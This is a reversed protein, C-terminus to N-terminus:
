GMGYAGLANASKPELVGWDVSPLSLESSLIDLVYPGKLDFAETLGAQVENISHARSAGTGMAKGVAAFDVPAFTSEPTIGLGREGQIVWGYGANNLIVFTIPLKLRAATEIEGLWYGAAGDGAVAIVRTGKPAGLAAGIAAGGAWGIGALGRPGIYSRGARRTQFRSATWGSALSADSVMIADDDMLANIAEVVREPAVAPDDPKTGPQPLPHGEPKWSFRAKAAALGDGIARAAERVDAVIEVAAPLARGLEEGDIDVHILEQTRNPLRWMFSNFQAFKSGLVLITDAQKLTRSAEIDGFVGVVGLALPNTESVVGKGNISTVIPIGFEDAFRAIEAHAGSAMAGGGALVMPRKAKALRAVADAVASALPATRHRPWVASDHTFMSLDPEPIQASMFDEPIEVVVPGPRGTTALRLAHEFVAVIQNPTQVRGVWKSVPALIAGQELAQSSVGRHRLHERNTRIDAVLALVPIASAYAEALGSVLNTSGPGVTADCMGVRGSVRAYADAACAGNREDRMLIHNFGRARAAGYFPVTQGGPVGFCTDIGCAELISVIVDCVKVTSM